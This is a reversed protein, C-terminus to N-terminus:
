GRGGAECTRLYLMFTHTSAAAAGQNDQPAVAKSLDVHPAMTYRRLYFKFAFSSLLKYYKLKLHKSGPAKFRPKMPEVQVARAMTGGPRPYRLIRMQPHAGRAPMGAARAAGVVAARAWGVVDCFHSRDACTDARTRAADVARAAAPGAKARASVAPAAPGPAGTAAATAATSITIVTTSATDTAAADAMVEVAALGAAAAEGAAAVAAVEAAEGAAAAAAAELRALIAEGVAGDVAFSWNAGPHAAAPDILRTVVVGGGRGGAAAAEGAEIRELISLQRDELKRRRRWAAVAEAAETLTDGAAEAAAGVGAGAGAGAAGATAGDRRAAATEGSAAVDRSGAALGELRRALEQFGAAAAAEAAGTCGGHPARCPDAGAALLVEAARGRGRWAAMLLATAGYEDAGYPRAYTARWRM